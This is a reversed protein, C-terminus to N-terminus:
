FSNLLKNVQKLISDIEWHTVINTKTKKSEWYFLEGLNIGYREHEKEDLISSPLYSIHLPFLCRKV